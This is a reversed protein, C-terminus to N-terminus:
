LPSQSIGARLAFDLIRKSKFAKNLRLTNSAPPRIVLPPKCHAAEATFGQRPTRTSGTSGHLPCTQAQVQSGPSKLGNLRCLARVKRYDRSISGEALPARQWRAHTHAQM